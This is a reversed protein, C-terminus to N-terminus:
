FDKVKKMAQIRNKVDLKSYINKIHTKITNTSVFMKEAIESNSMGSAIHELVETERSSLEFTKINEL